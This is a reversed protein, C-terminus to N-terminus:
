QYWCLNCLIKIFVKTAAPSTVKQPTFANVSKKVVFVNIYNINNTNQHFVLHGSFELLTQPILKQDLVEVNQYVYM